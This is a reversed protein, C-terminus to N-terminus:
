FSRVEGAIVKDTVEPLTALERNIVDSVTAEIGKITTSDDLWVQTDAILPETIPRGIQSVLLVQAERVGVVEDVLNRAIETSLVNYLKGVHTIPNKGSAAEISMSRNPTILGNVRNGRGVSGDDGMEASTGIVTLYVADEREGPTDATNVRVTTEFDTRNRAISEVFRRIAEIESDYAERNDVYADILAAAVTVTAQDGDRVGMVKVDQGLAPHDFGFSSQLEDEIDLVLRELESLPAYGVGFSTDNARPVPTESAFVNTLDGSGPGLQVDLVVDRDITLVPLTEALYDLAAERAIEEVPISMGQYTNTARGVVIIRIPETVTGGGFRPISQGAILQCEDTNYHLVAGFRDRYESALAQSVSEAIGDCLSDPHGIGKREVVEVRQDHIPRCYSEEIRKM